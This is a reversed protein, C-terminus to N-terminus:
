KRHCAFAREVAQAFTRPPDLLKSGTDTAGACLRSFLVPDKLISDIKARLDAVSDIRFLLGNVGHQVLYPFPGFDPAIVPIGLVLGEMVVKCRGESASSRTPTVLVKAQRIIAGLKEHPVQGLFIVEGAFRFRFVRERLSELAPGTGAYCLRLSADSALKQTCAELLDFVGKNKHIRGVFLICTNKGGDSLDPIGEEQSAGASIEQCGAGFVFLRSSKVGIHLLEDQLYPGNCVVSHARRVIWNDLETSLRQRIHSRGAYHSHRTHVLPVSYLRSVLFSAWLPYGLRACLIRHPHFGLLSLLTRGFGRLRLAITGQPRRSPAPIRYVRAEVNGIRLAGDDTSYSLLLIPHGACLRLFQAIYTLPGGDPVESPTHGLRQVESVVNGSKLYAYKTPKGTPGTFSM